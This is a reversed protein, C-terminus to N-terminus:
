TVSKLLNNMVLETWFVGHSTNDGVAHKCLRLYCQYWALFITHRRSYLFHIVLVHKLKDYIWNRIYMCTNLIRTWLAGTTQDALTKAQWCHLNHFLIWGLLLSQLLDSIQYCYQGSIASISGLCDMRLHFPQMPAAFAPYRLRHVVLDIIFKVIKYLCITNCILHKNIQWKKETCMYM